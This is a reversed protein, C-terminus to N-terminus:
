KSIEKQYDEWKKIKYINENYFKLVPLITEAPMYGPLPALMGFKEDLFVYTPYGMKGNLLSLAIENTKYEPKYVFNTGRFHITDQTEANLKVAYFNKNIYDAITDNQFTTADMKKCWGCWNTFVDIFLKKPEKDAKAIADEFGIWKIKQNKVEEVVPHQQANCSNFFAIAIVALYKKM